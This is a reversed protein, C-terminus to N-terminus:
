RKAFTENVSTVKTILMHAPIQMRLFSLVPRWRRMTKSQKTLMTELRWVEKRWDGQLMSPEGMGQRTLRKRVWRMM